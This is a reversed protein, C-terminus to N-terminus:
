RNYETELNPFDLKPSTGGDTVNGLFVSKGLPVRQFNVSHFPNISKMHNGMVIISRGALTVTGSADGLKANSLKSNYHLCYNNNFFVCEFRELINPSTTPAQQFEILATQGLGIFKNDLVQASYGFDGPDLTSPPLATFNVSAMAMTTLVGGVRLPQFDRLGRLWLARHEQQPNMLTPETYTVLNGQIRCQLISGLMMGFAPQKSNIKKQYFGTNSIECSVISLEGEVKAIGVGLAPLPSDYGCSIFRNETLAIKDIMEFGLFGGFKMIEIRNYMFDLSTQNLVAVGISGNIVENGCLSNGDGQSLALGLETHKIRNNSIRMHNTNILFVGSFAKSEEIGEIKNSCIDINSCRFGVIAFQPGKIINGQVSGGDITNGERQNAPIFGIMIGVAKQNDQKSELRFEVHNDEVRCGSGTVNIGGFASTLYLIKNNKIVCDWAAVDIAYIKQEGEVRNAQKRTIINEAIVSRNASSSPVGKLLTNNLSIGVSFGLITNGRIYSPGNAEMLFIGIEGPNGSGMGDVTILNNLLSLRWSAQIVFLGILVNHIECHELKFDRCKGVSVGLFSPQACSIKCNEIVTNNCNHLIVLAESGPDNSTSNDYFFQINSVSIDSIKDHEITLALLNSGNSRVVRTGPSEGNLSINSSSIIIPETIEHLGTKLCVCGGEPPLSDIAAQINEGPFVVATCCGSSLDTLPQFVDRCDEIGTVQNGNWEVLALRCYHHHIGRPPAKVLEEVSPGETRTHFVWFDGAHIVANPPYHFTVQVGEELEVTEDPAPLPILGDSAVQTPAKDWRRVRTHREDFGQAPFETAPLDEVLTIEQEDPVVTNIKRIIGSKGEFEHRNDLIEVWEGDNFNLHSDKGLSAVKLRKLDPIDTVSTAVIGNNRSWKFFIGANEEDEHIEVRYTRNELGRYGGSPPILCPNDTTVATSQGSSLRIDSPQIKDTWEAIPTQCFVDNGLKDDLIRVQWVTQTRGTTDVGVAKEVLAPDQLFTVDRQWVDLYVLYRGSGPLTIAPEVRYPQDSFLVGGNGQDEALAPNFVGPGAGHNEVLLGDVYIRGPGITLENNAIDIKFGDPTESPVGCPGVVDLTEARWRRDQIEGAENDEADLRVRGQEWIVGSYNNKPNYTKRSIDTTM